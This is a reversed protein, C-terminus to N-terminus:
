QGQLANLEQGLSLGLCLGLSFAHCAKAHYLVELSDTLLFIIHRYKKPFHKIKSKAEASQKVYFQETDDAPSFPFQRSLNEYLLYKCSQM